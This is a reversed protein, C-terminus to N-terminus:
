GELVERLREVRKRNVGMDSHGVRSSSRVHVVGDGADRLEVDDIFRFFRSQFTAAVYTDTEEIVTGGMREVARKAEALTARLPAVQVDPPTGPESSVVNPKPGVPALRGNVLGKARGRQSVLALVLLGGVVVVLILVVLDHM